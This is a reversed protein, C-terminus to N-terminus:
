LISKIKSLDDRPRILAPCHDLINIRWLNVMKSLPDVVDMINRVNVLYEINAHASVDVPRIISIRRSSSRM